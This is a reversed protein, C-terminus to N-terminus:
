NAMKSKVWEKFRQNYCLCGGVYGILSLVLLVFLIRRFPVFFAVIIYIQFATMKRVTKVPNLESLCSIHVFKQFMGIAVVLLESFIEFNLENFRMNGIRQKTM